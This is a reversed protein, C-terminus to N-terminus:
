MSSTPAGAPTWSPSGTTHPSRTRPLHGGTSTVASAGRSLRPADSLMIRYVLRNALLLCFSSSHWSVTPGPGLDCSGRTSM